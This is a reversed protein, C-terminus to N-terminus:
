ILGQELAAFFLDEDDALRAKLPERLERVAVTEDDAGQCLVQFRKLNGLTMPQELLHKAEALKSLSM